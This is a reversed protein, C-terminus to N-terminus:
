KKSKSKSTSLPNDTKQEAEAKEEEEKFPNKEKKGAAKDAKEEEETFPNAGKKKGSGKREEGAERDVYVIKEVVKEVVVVREKEVPKRKQCCVSFAVVCLAILQLLTAAISLGLGPGVMAPSTKLVDALNLGNTNLASAGVVTGVVTLLFALLALVLRARNTCPGVCCRYSNVLSLFFLILSLAFGILLLAAAASATVNATLGSATFSACTSVGGTNACATILGISFGPLALWPTLAGSICLASGLLALIGGVLMARHASCCRKKKAEAKGNVCM